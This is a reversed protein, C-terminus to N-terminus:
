GTHKIKFSSLTTMILIAYSLFVMINRSFGHQSLLINAQLSYLLMTSLCCLLAIIILLTRIAKDPLNSTIMNHYCVALLFYAPLSLVSGFLIGFGIFFLYLRYDEQGRFYIAFLLATLVPGALVVVFWSNVLYRYKKFMFSLYKNWLLSTELSLRLNIDHQGGFTLVFRFNALGNRLLTAPFYAASYTV